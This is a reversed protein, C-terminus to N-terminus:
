KLFTDTDWIKYYQIKRHCMYFILIIKVSVTTAEDVNIGM